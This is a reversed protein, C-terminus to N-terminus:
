YSLSYMPIYRINLTHFNNSFSGLGSGVPSHLSEMELCLLQRTWTLSFLWCCFLKLTSARSHSVLINLKRPAWINGEVQWVLTHKGECAREPTLDLVNLVWFECVRSLGERSSPAFCLLHFIDNEHLPLLYYCWRTFWSDTCSWVFETYLWILVWCVSLM